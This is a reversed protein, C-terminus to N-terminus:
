LHNMFTIKVASVSMKEEEKIGPFYNDKIDQSNFLILDNQKQFFYEIRM